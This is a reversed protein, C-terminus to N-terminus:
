EKDPQAADPPTLTVLGAALLRDALEQPVDAGAAGVGPVYQDAPLDPSPHVRVLGPAAEPATTKAM